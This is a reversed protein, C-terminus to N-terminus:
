LFMNMIETEDIEVKIDPDELWLEDILWRRGRPSECNVLQYVYSYDRKNVTDVIYEQGLIPEMLGVFAVTANIKNADEKIKVIDGPNYKNM